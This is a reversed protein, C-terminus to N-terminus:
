DALWFACTYISEPDFYEPPANRLKLSRVGFRGAEPEAIIGLMYANEAHIRLMEKQLNIREQADLVGPLKKYIEYIRKVPEPPEEGEAGGTQNYLAWQPAWHSGSESFAFGGRQYPPSSLFGLNEGYSAMDFDLGHVASVWLARDTPKVLMEIGVKAFDAKVMEMMQVNDPPWPTFVLNVLSIRKGDPRLRYGDSDKATLGIEDLMRNALDPDYETYMLRYKEEYWPTGIAATPNGIAGLGKWVLDNIENRDIAHSLAIRFNRENFLQRYFPDSHSYNFYISGYTTGPSRYFYVKYGGKAEGEKAVTFNALSGVRRHQFDTDGAIAKLFLTEGNPVLTRQVDDLYPLQSGQQDVKWYYPNRALVQVPEDLSNQVIWAMIDPTGPNNFDMTQAGYFDTWSDYDAEAMKKEIEAMDTYKPHFQKMYHAPQWPRIKALHEEFLGYPDDWEFSFTTEDVITLKALKDNRKFQAPKAPTLDDNLIVDEWWYRVDETTFPEGDSWKMGKRLYITIKRGGNSFEWGKAVNPVVGTFDPKFKGVYEFMLYSNQWRDSSGIHLQRWTGGYKGVEDVTLVLPEEPIREEVPPLEGSAVLEALMPAEELTSSAAETTTETAGAEKEGGAFAVAPLLLGVLAILVMWKPVRLM